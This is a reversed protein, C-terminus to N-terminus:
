MNVCICWFICDASSTITLNAFPVSEDKGHRIQPGVKKIPGSVAAFLLVIKYMSCLLSKM